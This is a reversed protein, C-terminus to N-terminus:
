KMIEQMMPGLINKLMGTLENAKILSMCCVKNDREWTVLALKDGPRIDAKERVEKPLVMQGREDISILSEVKFSGMGEGACCIGKKNKEPM